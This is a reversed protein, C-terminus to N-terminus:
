SYLSSVPSDAGPAHQINRHFYPELHKALEVAEREELHIGFRYTDGYRTDLAVTGGSFGYIEFGDFHSASGFRGSARLNFLEHLPYTRALGRGFVERKHIFTGERISIVERGFAQWLWILIVSTEGVIWGCLWFILFPDPNVHTLLAYVAAVGGITWGSLWVTLFILIRWRKDAKITVTIGRNDRVTSVRTGNTM